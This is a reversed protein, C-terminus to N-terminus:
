IIIIIKRLFIKYFFNEDLQITLKEIAMLEFKEQFESYQQRKQISYVLYHTIM